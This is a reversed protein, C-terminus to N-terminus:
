EFLAGRGVVAGWGGLNRYSDMGPPPPTRGRSEGGWEPMSIDSMELTLGPSPSGVGVLALAARGRYRSLLPFLIIPYLPTASCCV